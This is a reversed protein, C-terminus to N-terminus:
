VLVSPWGAALKPMEISSRAAASIAACAGASAQNCTSSAGMEPASRPPMSAAPVSVGIEAVSDITPLKEAPALMEDEPIESMDMGEPMGWDGTVFGKIPAGCADSIHRLLQGMTMWNEGTPPKWDLQDEDVLDILGETARYMDEIETKLVDEAVTRVRTLPVDGWLGIRLVPDLAPDYKLLVPPSADEPLRM